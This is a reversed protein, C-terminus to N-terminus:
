WLENSAIVHKVVLPNADFPTSLKKQKSQKMLVVMRPNLSSERARSKIDAYLKM